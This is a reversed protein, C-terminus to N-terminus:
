WAPSGSWAKCRRQDEGPGMSLSFSFLVPLLTAPNIVQKSFPEQRPDCYAMVVLNNVQSNCFVPSRSLKIQEEPHGPFGGQGRDEPEIISYYITPKVSCM